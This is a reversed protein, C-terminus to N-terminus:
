DLEMPSPAENCVGEFIELAEERDGEFFERGRFKKFGSKNMNEILYSESLQNYSSMHVRMLRAGKEERAIERARTYPDRVTRGVKFRKHKGVGDFVIFYIYGPDPKEDYPYEQKTETPIRRAAMKEM